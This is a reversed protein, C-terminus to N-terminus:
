RVFYDRIANANEPALECERGLLFEEHMQNHEVALILELLKADTAVVELVDHAENRKVLM